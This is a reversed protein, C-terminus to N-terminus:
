VTRYGECSKSGVSKLNPIRNNSVDYWLKRCLRSSTPDPDFLYAPTFSIGVPLQAIKALIKDYYNGENKTLTVSRM